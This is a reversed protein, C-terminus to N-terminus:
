AARRVRDLFSSVSPALSAGEGVPDRRTGTRHFSHDGGEIEVLTARAGLRDVVAHLLDSRAFPDRTGQLFLMPVRIADLHADRLADVRGPPHLPYGLFVLADARMGAAVAMSAIRGGLSKGGVALPRGAARSRAVEAAAHWTALLVPLPDPPRPLREQYPFDFRLVALGRDRAAFTFGELFPSDLPAGAGPALALVASAGPAEDWAASVARGGVDIAFRETAM